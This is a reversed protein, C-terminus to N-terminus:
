FRTGEKYDELKTFQNRLSDTVRTQFKWEKPIPAIFVFMTMVIDACLLTGVPGDHVYWPLQMDSHGLLCHM